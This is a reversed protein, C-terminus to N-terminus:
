RQPPNETQERTGHLESASVLRKRLAVRELGGFETATGGVKEPILEGGDNV